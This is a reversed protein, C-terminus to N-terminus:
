TRAIINPPWNETEIFAPVRSRLFDVTKRSRHKMFVDHIVDCLINLRFKLM